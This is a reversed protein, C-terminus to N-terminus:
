SAAVSVVYTGRVTGTIRSGGDVTRTIAGTIGHVRSPHTGPFWIDITGPKPTTGTLELTTTCDTKLSTLRGPASRPYPRWACQWQPVVGLNHDGPCGNRQFHILVKDPTGGPHGISHPDGCAQRWQWWAEGADLLADAKDAFRRVKSANAAPDSFWGYEGIWMATGYNRAASAYYDFEAEIPISGISEGYNHPAFVINTDTTFHPAVFAGFVTDEFFVIHHFGHNETENFRIIKIAEDYYHALGRLATNTDHGHNPENLLDFGAVDPDNAFRRSVFGWTNVLATMVRDRNAYFSDWSTEVAESMERSGHACTDANNDITAWQPAGDWGIAPTGGNTCHVGKPSAIYKGWADQHMDIVSYIGHRAAAQVADAVRNLYAGDYSGPKPEVKSWSILLRVVDFGHAAMSAWDTDTVPVVTPLAPDDQYYDGLSNVNVGRLRVQRGQSDYIGATAGTTAHLPLLTAATASPATTATAKAGHKSTSSSSSCATLTVVVVFIM